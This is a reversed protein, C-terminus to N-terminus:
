VLVQTAAIDSRIDVSRKPLGPKRISLGLSQSGLDVSFVAEAALVEESLM